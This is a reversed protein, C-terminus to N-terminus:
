GEVGAIKRRQAFVVVDDYGSRALNKVACMAEVRSQSLSLLRGNWGPLVTRPSSVSTKSNPVFGSRCDPGVRKLVGDLKGM